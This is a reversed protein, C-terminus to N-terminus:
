KGGEEGKIVKGGKRGRNEERGPAGGRFAALPDSRPLATLEEAPGPLARGGFAKQHM